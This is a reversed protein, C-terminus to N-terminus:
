KPEEVPNNLQSDPPNFADVHLPGPHGALIAHCVARLLDQTTAGPRNLILLAIDRHADNTM